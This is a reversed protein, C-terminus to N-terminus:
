ADVKLSFAIELQLFILKANLKAFSKQCANLTSAFWYPQWTGSATSFISVSIHNFVLVFFTLPNWFIKIIVYIM